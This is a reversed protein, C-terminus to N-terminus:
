QIMLWIYLLKDESDKYKSYVKGVLDLSELTTGDQVQLSFKKDMTFTTFEKIRNTVDAITMTETVLFKTKSININIGHVIIPIKDPYDLQLKEYLIQRRDLSITLKFPPIRHGSKAFPNYIRNKIYNM